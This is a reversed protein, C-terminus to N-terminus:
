QLGKFIKAVFSVIRDRLFAVIKNEQFPSYSFKLYNLSPVVGNNGELTVEVLLFKSKVAPIGKGTIQSGSIPYYNSWPVKDWIERKDENAIKIRYVISTGQPITSSWQVDKWSVLEGLDAKMRIFGITVGKDEIIVKSNDEKINSKEVQTAKKDNGFSDGGVILLQKQPISNKYDAACKASFGLYGLLGVMAILIFWHAFTSFKSIHWKYYWRFHDRFWFHAPELPKILTKTSRHIAAVRRSLAKKHLKGLKELEKERNLNEQNIEEM